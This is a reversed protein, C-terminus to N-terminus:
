GLHSDDAQDQFWKSLGRLENRHLQRDGISVVPTLLNCPSGGGRGGISITSTVSSPPTGSTDIEVFEGNACLSFYQTTNRRGWTAVMGIPSGRVVDTPQMQLFAQSVGGNRCWYAVSNYTDSFYLSHLNSADKEWTVAYGAPYPHSAGDQTPILTVGLWGEEPLAFSGGAIAHDFQYDARTTNAATPTPVPDYPELSSVGVSELCPAEFLLTQGDEIEVGYYISVSSSTQPMVCFLRYWGTSSVKQYVTSSASTAGTWGLASDWVLLKCKSSDIAAGPNNVDYVLISFVRNYTASTYNTARIRLAGGTTNQVQYANGGVIGWATADIIHDSAPAPTTVLLGAQAAFDRAAATNNDWYNTRGTQGVRGDKPLINSAPAAIDYLARGPDYYGRDDVGAYTWTFNEVGGKASVVLSGDKARWLYKAGYDWVPSNRCYTGVGSNIRRRLM